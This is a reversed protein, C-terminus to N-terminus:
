FDQPPTTSGKPWRARCHAALARAEMADADRRLIAARRDLERGAATWAAAATPHVQDASVTWPKPGCGDGAITVRITGRNTFRELVACPEVDLGATVRYVTAGPAIWAPPAPRTTKM